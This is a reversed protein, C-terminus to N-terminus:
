VSELERCSPCTKKYSDPHKECIAKVEEQLDLHEKQIKPIFLNKIWNIFNNIM